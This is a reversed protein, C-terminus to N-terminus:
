LAANTRESLVAVELRCAAVTEAFARDNAVLQPVRNCAHIVTTHDRFGFADGIAPFSRGLIDRCLFMAIHRPRAVKQKRSPGEMQSLSCDTVRSVARKIMAMTVRTPLASSRVGAIVHYREASGPPVGVLRADRRAQASHLVPDM